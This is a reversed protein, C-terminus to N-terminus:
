NETRSKQAPAADRISLSPQAIRFLKKVVRIPRSDLVRELANIHEQQAEKEVGAQQLAETLEKLAGLHETREESIKRLAETLDNIRGQQAEKEVGAQQLATALREIEILRNTRDHESTQYRRVLDHTVLGWVNASPLDLKLFVALNEVFRGIEVTEMGACAALYVWSGLQSSMDPAKCSTALAEARLTASEETLPFAVGDDVLEEIVSQYGLSVFIDKGLFSALDQKEQLSLGSRWNGISSKDVERGFRLVKRDGVLSLRQATIAEGPQNYAMMTSMYSLSLFDCLNKLCHEPSAVFNEYAIVFTDGRSASAFTALDFLGKAFDITNPTPNLGVIEGISIGWTTKYSLAIDLPNRLLIIKKASPYCNYIFDLVHYYRPTKDLFLSKGSSLASSSYLANALRVVGDLQGGVSFLSLFADKIKQRYEHCVAAKRVLEGAALTAMHEDYPLCLEEPHITLDRLLLQIWPEPPCCIDSHRGLMLSLMTSGSRPMSLLFVPDIDSSKDVLSM